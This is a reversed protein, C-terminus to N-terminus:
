YCPWQARMHLQYLAASSSPLWSHIEPVLDTCPLAKNQGNVGQRDGVDTLLFKPNEVSDKDFEHYLHCTHMTAFYLATGVPSPRDPPALPIKCLFWRSLQRQNQSVHAFLSLTGPRQTLSFTSQGGKARAMCMHHSPVVKPKNDTFSILLM